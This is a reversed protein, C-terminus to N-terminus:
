LNRKMWFEMVFAAMIEDPNGYNEGQFKLWEWLEKFEAKSFEYNEKLTNLSKELLEPDVVNSWRGFKVWRLGAEKHLEGCTWDLIELRGFFTDRDIQGIKHLQRNLEALQQFSM